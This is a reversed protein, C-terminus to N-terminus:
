WDKRALKIEGDQIYGNRGEQLVDLVMIKEGMALLFTTLAKAPTTRWELYEKEPTDFGMTLAAELFGKYLQNECELVQPADNIDIFEKTEVFLLRWNGKSFTCLVKGRKELTVEFQYERAFCSELIERDPYNGILQM